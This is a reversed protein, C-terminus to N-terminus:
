IYKKTNHCQLSNYNMFRTQVIDIESIHVHKEFVFIHVHTNLSKYIIIIFDCRDMWGNLEVQILASRLEQSSHLLQRSFKFVNKLMPTHVNGEGGGRGCM